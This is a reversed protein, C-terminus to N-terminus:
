TNRRQNEKNLQIELDGILDRERETEVPGVKGRALLQQTVASTLNLM